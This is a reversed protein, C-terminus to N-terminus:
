EASRDGGSMQMGCASLSSWVVCAWLCARTCFHTFNISLGLSEVHCVSPEELRGSLCQRKIDSRIQHNSQTHIHTHSYATAHPKWPHVWYVTRLHGRSFGQHTRNDLRKIHTVSKESTTKFADRRQRRRSQSQRSILPRGPTNHCAYMASSPKAKLARRPYPSNIFSTIHSNINVERPSNVSSLSFSPVCHTAQFYPRESRWSWPNYLNYVYLLYTHTYQATVKLPVLM